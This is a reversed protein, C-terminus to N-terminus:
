EPLSELRPQPHPNHSGVAVPIMGEGPPLAVVGGLYYFPCGIAQRGAPSAVQSDTLREITLGAAAVRAECVPYEIVRNGRESPGVVTRRLICPLSLYQRPETGSIPPVNPVVRLYNRSPCSEATPGERGKSLIDYEAGFTIDELPLTGTIIYPGAFDGGYNGYMDRSSPAHRGPDFAEVYRPNSMDLITACIAIM